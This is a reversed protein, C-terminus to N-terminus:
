GEDGPAADLPAAFAASFYSDDEAPAPAFQGGGYGIVIGFVACAALAMLARRDFGRTQPRPAQKLIRRVLLEPAPDGNEEALGLANDITQAERMLPVADEAHERAFAEGASRVDEPWRRFDAGYAALVEEFRARDMVEEKRM